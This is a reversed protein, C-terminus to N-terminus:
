AATGGDVLERSALGPRSGHPAIHGPLAAHEERRDVVGDLSLTRIPEYVEAGPELRPATSPFDGDVHAIRAVTFVDGARRVHRHSRESATRALRAIPARLERNAASM